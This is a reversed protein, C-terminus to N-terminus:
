IDNRKDRVWYCHNKMNNVQLEIETTFLRDCLESTAAPAPIDVAAMQKISKASRVRIGM